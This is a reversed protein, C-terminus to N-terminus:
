SSTYIYRPGMHRVNFKTVCMDDGRPLVENVVIAGNFM